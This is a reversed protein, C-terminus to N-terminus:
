LGSPILKHIRHRRLMREQLVCPDPCPPLTEAAAAEEIHHHHFGSVASYGDCRQHDGFNPHISDLNALESEKIVRMDRTGAEQDRFTMLFYECSNPIVEDVLAAPIKELKALQGLTRGLHFANRVMRLPTVARNADPTRSSRWVNRQVGAPVLIQLTQRGLM